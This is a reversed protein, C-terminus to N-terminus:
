QLLLKSLLIIVMTPLPPPANPFESELNPYLRNPQSSPPLVASNVLHNPRYPLAPPIDEQSVPHSQSPQLSNNQLSSANPNLLRKSFLLEAYDTKDHSSKCLTLCLSFFVSCFENQTTEKQMTCLNCAFLCVNRILFIFLSNWSSRRYIGLLLCTTLM